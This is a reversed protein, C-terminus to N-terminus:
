DTSLTTEVALWKSYQQSCECLMNKHPFTKIIFCFYRVQFSTFLLIQTGLLCNKFTKAEEEETKERTAGM